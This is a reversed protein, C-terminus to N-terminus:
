QCSCHRGAMCGTGGAFEYCGTEQAGGSHCELSYCYHACIISPDEPCFADGKMALLLFFLMLLRGSWCMKKM